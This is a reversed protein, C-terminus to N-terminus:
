FTNSFNRSSMPVGDEKDVNLIKPLASTDFYDGNSMTAPDFTLLNNVKPGILSIEYIDTDGKDLGPIDSLQGLVSAANWIDSDSLVSAIATPIDRLSEAGSPNFITELSINSPYGVYGDLVSDKFTSPVSSANEFGPYAVESFYDQPTLYGTVFSVGRFDKDLDISELLPVTTNKPPTSIKTHPNNAVVSSILKIDDGLAPDSMISSIIGRSLDQIDTYGPFLYKLSNSLYGELGNGYGSFSNIELYLDKLLSTKTKTVWNVGLEEDIYDAFEENNSYEELLSDMVVENFYDESILFSQFIDSPLQADFVKTPSSNIIQNQVERFSDVSGYAVSALGALTSFDDTIYGIKL